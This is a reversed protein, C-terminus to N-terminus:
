YRKPGTFYGILMSVGIAVLILPWLSVDILGGIGIIVFITGLIIRGGVPQRYEPMVLRVLVELWILGGAGTMIWAWVNDWSLGLFAGEEGGMNRLMLVAGAWILILAWTITGLRDNVWKENEKEDKEERKAVDKEDAM